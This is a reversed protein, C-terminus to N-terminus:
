DNAWRIRGLLDVTVKKAKLTSAKFSFSEVEASQRADTHSVFWMQGSTSAATRFALLLDRSEADQKRKVTALVLEGGSLSMIFKADPKSPHERKIVRVHDRIRKAAEMMSVSVLERKKKGKEEFEFICVHHNSGTKVSARGSRIPVITNDRKILRVKKILPGNETTAGNKGTMRLKWGEKIENELSKIQAM